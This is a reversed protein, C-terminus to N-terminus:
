PPGEIGTHWNHNMYDQNWLATFFDNSIVDFFDGIILGTSKNTIIAGPPVKMLDKPQRAEALQLTVEYLFQIKGVPSQFEVERISFYNVRTSLIKKSMAGQVPTETRTLSLFPSGPQSNLFYELRNVIRPAKATQNASVAQDIDCHLPFILFTYNTGAQTNASAKTVTLLSSFSFTYPGNPIPFCATKLDNHILRLLRRGEQVLEIQQMGQLSTQSGSKFISYAPGLILASLLIVMMIEILTFAKGCHIARKKLTLRKM